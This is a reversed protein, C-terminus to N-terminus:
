QDSQAMRMEKQIVPWYHRTYVYISIVNILLSVIEAAYIFWVPMFQISDPAMLYWYICCLSPFSILTRAKGSWNAKASVNHLAGISRLFTVWQDRFLFIITLGLLLAAHLDQKLMATLFVLTPFTVLYFVKDTMPDAYAGLQSEVKFKRAFHGDFLDTLASLVMAIFAFLFAAGHWKPSLLVFEGEVRKWCLINVLLFLVILPIRGLTLATVFTFQLRKSKM